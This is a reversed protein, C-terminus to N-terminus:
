TVPEPITRGPYPEPAVPSIAKAMSVRNSEVNLRTRQPISQVHYSLLFLRDRPPRLYPVINGPLQESFPSAVLHPEFLLPVRKPLLDVGNFTQDSCESRVNM